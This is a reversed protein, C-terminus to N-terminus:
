ASLQWEKQQLGQIRNAPEGVSASGAEQCRERSWVGAGTLPGLELAQTLAGCIGEGWSQATLMSCSSRGEKAMQM